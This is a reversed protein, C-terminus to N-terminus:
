GYLDEDYIVWVSIAKREMPMIDGEADHWLFTRCDTTDQLKGNMIAAMHNKTTVICNGYVEYAQTWTLKAGKRVKVKVLGFDDFVRSYVSRPFGQNRTNEQKGREIRCETLADYCEQYSCETLIALARAVHNPKALAAGYQGGDNYEYGIM